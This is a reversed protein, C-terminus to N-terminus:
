VTHMVTNVGSVRKIETNAKNMEIKYDAVVGKLDGIESKLSAVYLLAIVVLVVVSIQKWYKMALSLWSM